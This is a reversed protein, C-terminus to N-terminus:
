KSCFDNYIYIIIIITNVPEDNIYWSLLSPPSSRQVSCSLHATEGVQIPTMTMTMLTTIMMMMMTMMMKTMMMTTMMTTVMMTIMKDIDGDDYFDDIVQYQKREVDIVPGEAPFDSIWDIILWFYWLFYDDFFILLFLWWVCKWQRWWLLWLWSWWCWLITRGFKSVFSCLFM